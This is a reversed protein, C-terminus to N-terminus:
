DSRYIYLSFARERDLFTLISNIFDKKYNIMRIEKM